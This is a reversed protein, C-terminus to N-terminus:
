VHRPSPLLRDVAVAALVVLSLEASHRFRIQGYALVATVTVTVFPALVILLPVRRRRLLIVGYVAFPILLFYTGV